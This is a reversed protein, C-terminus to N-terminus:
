LLLFTVTVIANWVIVFNYCVVHVHLFHWLFSLSVKNEVYLPLIYIYCSTHYCVTLYCGSVSRGSCDECMRRPNVIPRIIFPSLLWWYAWWHFYSAWNVWIWRTIHLTLKVCILMVWFYRSILYQVVNSTSYYMYAYNYTYNIVYLIYMYM